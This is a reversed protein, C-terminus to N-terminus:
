RDEKISQRIHWRLQHKVQALNEESRDVRVRLVVWLAWVSLMALANMLLTLLMVPPMEAGHSTLVVPHLSKFWRVTVYDLPVDAYFVIALVAAIRARRDPDPYADRIVLYGMFLVWLLLTATLRPDWTWWVGWVVRGWLVGTALLMSAFVMGAEVSAAALRDWVQDRRWLYALSAAFAVSFAVAVVVAAGMHVYFIRQSAGLTVDNPAGVLAWYGAGLMLLAVGALILDM